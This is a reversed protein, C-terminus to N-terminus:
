KVSSLLPSITTQYDNALPNEMSRNEVGTGGLLVVTFFILGVVVILGNPSLFRLMLKEVNNESSELRTPMDGGGMHLPQGRPAHPHTGGAVCICHRGARAM